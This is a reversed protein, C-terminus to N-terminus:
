INQRDIKSNLEFKDKREFGQFCGVVDNRM